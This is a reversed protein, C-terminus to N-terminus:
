APPDCRKWRQEADDWVMIHGTVGSRLIAVLQRLAEAPVPDPMVFQTREDLDVLSWRHVTERRKSRGLLARMAQYADEATKGVLAQVFPTVVTTVGAGAAMWVWEPLGRDRDDDPGGHLLRWATPMVEAASAVRAHRGEVTRLAWGDLSSYTALLDHDQDPFRRPDTRLWLWRM